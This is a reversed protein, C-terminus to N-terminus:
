LDPTGCRQRAMLGQGNRGEVRVGTLGDGPEGRRRVRAATQIHPQLLSMTAGGSARHQNERRGYIRGCDAHVYRSRQLRFEGVADTEAQDKMRGGSLVSPSVLSSFSLIKRKHGFPKEQLYNGRVAMQGTVKLFRAMCGQPPASTKRSISIGNRSSYVRCWDSKPSKRDATSHSSFFPLRSLTREASARSSTSGQASAARKATNGFSTAADARTTMRRWSGPCCGSAESAATIASRRTVRRGSPPDTVLIGPSVLPCPARRPVLPRQSRTASITTRATQIIFLSQDQVDRADGRAETQKRLCLHGSCPM